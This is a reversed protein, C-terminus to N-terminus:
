LKRGTGKRPTHGLRAGAEAAMTIAMAGLRAANSRKAEAALKIRAARALAQYIMSM